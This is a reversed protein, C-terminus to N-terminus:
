LRSERVNADLILRPRKGRFRYNRFTGTWEYIRGCEGPSFTEMFDRIAEYLWPGGDFEGFDVVLAVPNLEGSDYVGFSFVLRGPYAVNKEPALHGWTDRRVALAYEREAPLFAEMTTQASM